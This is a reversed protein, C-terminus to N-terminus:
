QGTIKLKINANNYTGKPAKSVLVEGAKGKLDGWIRQTRTDFYLYLNDRGKTDYIAVYDDPDPTDREIVSVVIPIVSQPLGSATFPALTTVTKTDDPANKTQANGAIRVTVQFDAKSVTDLDNDVDDLEVVQVSVSHSGVPTPQQNPWVSVRGNSALPGAGRLLENHLWLGNGPNFDISDHNDNDWPLSAGYNQHSYLRYWAGGTLGLGHASDFGVFGDSDNDGDKGPVFPDADLLDVLLHTVLGSSLNFPDSLKRVKDAGTGKMPSSIQDAEPISAKGWPSKPAKGYGEYRLYSEILYLAGARFGHRGSGLVDFINYPLMRGNLPAPGRERDFFLGSPNRGGFTYIPVAEGNPGRRATNPAIIGKNYEAIRNIDNLCDREGSIADLATHTFEEIKENAAETIKFRKLASNDTLASVTAKSIRNTRRVFAALDQAQDPIPTGLHPTSSTIGLVTRERLFDARKHEEATLKNGYLDAADPNALITRLVIGGFSHGLLYLQPQQSQPLHGFTAQYTDYIQNIADATQPMLHKSGDRFTVMVATAPDNSPVMFSKLEDKVQKSTLNKKGAAFAKPLFVPALQGPVINPEDAPNKIENTWAEVKTDELNLFLSHTKLVNVTTGPTTEGMFGQIFDVGWYFRAHLPTNINEEKAEEPKSTIGHMLVVLRPRQPSLTFGSTSGVQITPRVATPPTSVQAMCTPALALTLAVLSTTTNKM